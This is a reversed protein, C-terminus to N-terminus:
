LRGRVVDVPHARVVAARLHLVRERGREAAARGARRRRAEEHEGVALAVVEVTHLGLDAAVNRLGLLLAREEADEAHADAIGDGLDTRRRHRMQLVSM